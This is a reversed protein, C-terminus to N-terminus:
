GCAQILARIYGFIFAEEVSGRGRGPVHDPVVIGDFGVEALTRVIAPLDLYGNDPFTEHFYPLPGSTNRLHIQHIHGTPGFERIAEVIDEGKGAPGPMESWTGVCFLIGAHNDGGTREIATRYSDTSRFIRAVGQHTLPPDNPHLQLKVGAERAVPLVRQMFYDYNAWMTDDDYQTDYADPLALAESARLERTSVGRTTTRGSMYAGGTHWAYTTYHIGLRGIDTIFENLRDITADRGPLGLTFERSSYLDDLMIEHLEFGAGTVTDRIDGLTDLTADESKLRVEMTEVGMKRLYAFHDENLDQPRQHSIGLKM